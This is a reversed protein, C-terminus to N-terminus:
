AKSRRRVTATQWRRPRASPERSERLGSVAACPHAARSPGRHHDYRGRRGAFTVRPPRLSSWGSRCRRSASRRRPGANATSSARSVPAESSTSTTLGGKAGCACMGSSSIASIPPALAMAQRRTSRARAAPTSAVGARRTRCSARRSSRPSRGLARPPCRRRQSGRSRFRGIAAERSRRARGQGAPRSGRSRRSTVDFTLPRTPRRREGALSALALVAALALGIWAAPETGPAAGGARDDPGPDRSRRPRGALARRDGVARSRCAARASRPEAFSAPRSRSCCWRLPGPWSDPATCGRHGRIGPFPCISWSSRRRPSCSRRLTRPVAPAIVNTNMTM